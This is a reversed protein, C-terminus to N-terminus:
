QFKIEKLISCFPLSRNVAFFFKKKEFKVNRKKWVSSLFSQIKQQKKNRQWCLRLVTDFNVAIM